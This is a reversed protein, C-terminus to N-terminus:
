NGRKAQERAASENLARVNAKGFGKSGKRQIIEFFLTPRDHMPHGFIQLLYGEDDRDVLISHEKLKDIPEDIEGVRDQLLEYYESPTHLFNFGNEKLTKVSKIIDDTLFAIHHVGPGNNFTLFEHIQSSENDPSEAIPFKVKESGNQLFKAMLVTNESSVKDDGFGEMSKFGLAKEYYRTWKLMSDVCTAIHDIRTLKTDNEKHQEDLKIYGPLFNNYNKREVLTHVVDGFTSIMAIKITGYEDNIEYPEKISNGGNKVIYDYTKIVDEVRLAIDKVGDGHEKVFDSINSNSHYAGSLVINIDGNQIIYSAKERNGTELGSYGIIKFGFLRCYYNAAQRANGTYIEIYDVDDVPLIDNISNTRTM